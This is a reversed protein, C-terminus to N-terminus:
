SIIELAIYLVISNYWMGHNYLADATIDIDPATTIHVFIPFDEGCMNEM